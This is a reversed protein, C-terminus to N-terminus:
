PLLCLRKYMLLVPTVHYSEYTSPLKILLCIQLYYCCGQCHTMLAQCETLLQTPLYTCMICLDAMVHYTVHGMMHSTGHNM